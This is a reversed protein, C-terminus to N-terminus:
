DFENFEEEEDEKNSPPRTKSSPSKKLTRNDLTQNTTLKATQMQQDSTYEYTTEYWWNPGKSWWLGARWQLVFYLQNNGNM